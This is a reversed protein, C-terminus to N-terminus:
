PPDSEAGDRLSGDAAYLDDPGNPQIITRRFPAPGCMLMFYDYLARRENAM